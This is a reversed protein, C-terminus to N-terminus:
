ADVMTRDLAAEVAQQLEALNYPKQLVHLNETAPEVEEATQQNFGSTLLLACRPAHQQAWRAVDYGSMGGKMEIDTFILDIDSQQKLISVAEPGDSAQFTDYGLARLRKVTIKRVMDNDEVVLILSEFDISKINAPRSDPKAILAETHRPLYVNIVSGHGAESYVNVAGGSQQAFGYISALGLGTGEGLEKTTFFPEFIRAKVEDTMGCGTDSVSLQVYDGPTIEFGDAIDDETFSVNKTSVSLKGGKPMADRANIALNVVTNEIESPDARISWVDPSLNSSLSINEGITSRLLQLAGLVHENASLVRPELHGQKAFTLLRRTLRAGMQAATEAETLLERHENNQINMSLFELNGKIVSLLNNFDHAIGGSLQGIAEIKQSQHLRAETELKATVDRHVGIYHTLEGDAAHVPSISLEDMYNSGDKRTSEFLVQVSEGKAQAAQIKLHEPQRHNNKQLIRVGQGLLEDTAYGTLKCLTQNVYVLPFNKDSADTISVGVDVADIARERLRVSEEQRIRETIDQIIAVYVPPTQTDMFQLHTSVPYTSGDKRRHVSEFEQADLVGERLPAVLEEINEKNIGKVFDWPLLEKSEDDTYGLNTRAARNTDLIQYTDADALYIENVSDEIIRALRDRSAQAQERQQVTTRLTDLANSIEGLENQQLLGATSSFDGKAYSRTTLVLKKLPRTLLHNMIGWFLVAALAVVLGSWLAVTQVQKQMTQLPRQLDAGISLMGTPKVDEDKPNGPLDFAYLGTILQGKKVEKIQGSSLEHRKDPISLIDSLPTNDLSHGLWGQETSALVKNDENLFVIYTLNAIKSMAAMEQNIIALDDPEALQGLMDILRSSVANLRKASEQRAHESEVRYSVVYQVLTISLGTILIMLPILTQLSRTKKLSM